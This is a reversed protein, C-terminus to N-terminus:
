RNFISQKRSLGSTKKLQGDSQYHTKGFQQCMLYSRKKPIQSHSLPETFNSKLSSELSSGTSKKFSNPPSKSYDPYIQSTGTFTPPAVSPQGFWTLPNYWDQTSFKNRRQM